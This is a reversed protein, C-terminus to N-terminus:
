KRLRIIADVYQTTCMFTIPDCTWASVQANAKGNKFAGGTGPFGSSAAVDISFRQLTGDCTPTTSGFGSAGNSQTVQGTLSSFLSFDGPECRITGTLTVHLMGPSLQATDDITLDSIAASATASFAGAMALALIASRRSARALGHLMNM